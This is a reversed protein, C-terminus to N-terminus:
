EGITVDGYPADLVMSNSLEGSWAGSSGPQFHLKTGDWVTNVVQDMSILPDSFGGFGPNLAAFHVWYGDICESPWTDIGGGDIHDNLRSALEWGYAPEGAGDDERRNFLAVISIGDARQYAATSTGTVAGTHGGTYSGGGIPKGIDNGIVVYQDLFKLLPAAGSVLNGHGQFSEHDWTGYPRPVTDGGPNFVNTGYSDSIYLPERPSQSAHFTRGTFMESGPIWMDPTLIRNRLNTSVPLGTVDEIILGLLMYGFNSYAYTDGPPHPLDQSLMYRATNVRGLPFNNIGMQGAIFLSEFQPDCRDEGCWEMEEIDWGGTHALLHEVKVLKLDEDGLGNWPQISLLGGDEQGLDFVNDDLSFWGGAALNRVIAAVLPKEVSAIRMPTIESMPRLPSPNYGFGRQYVICGDKAVGLVGCPIDYEEMFAETIDDFDTLEPVTVGTKIIGAPAMQVASVLFVLVVSFMPAVGRLGRSNGSRRCATCEM